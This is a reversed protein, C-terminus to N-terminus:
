NMWDKSFGSIGSFILYILFFVLIMWGLTNFYYAPVKSREIKEAIISIVLIVIFVPVLIYTLLHGLYENSLWVLTLLIAQILLIEKQYRM